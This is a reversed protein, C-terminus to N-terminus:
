HSLYFAIAPPQWWHGTSLARPETFSFHCLVDFSKRRMMRRMMSKMMRMMMKEKAEWTKKFNQTKKAAKGKGQQILTACPQTVRGSMTRKKRSVLPLSTPALTGSWYTNRLKETLLYQAHTCSKSRWYQEQHSELAWSPSLSAQLSLPPQLRLFHKVALCAAWCSLVERLDWTSWIRTLWCPTSGQVRECLQFCLCLHHPRTLCAIDSSESDDFACKISVCWM